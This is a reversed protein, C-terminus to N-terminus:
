TNEIDKVEPHRLLQPSELSFCFYHFGLAAALPFVFNEDWVPASACGTKDLFLSLRACRGHPFVFKADLGIGLRM